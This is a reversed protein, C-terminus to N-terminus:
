QVSDPLESSMQLIVATIKFTPLVEVAQLLYTIIHESLYCFAHQIGLPSLIMAKGLRVRIHKM